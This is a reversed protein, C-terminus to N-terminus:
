PVQFRDSNRLRDSSRSPTHQDHMDNPLEYGGDSTEFVDNSLERFPLCFATGRYAYDCQIANEACSRSRASDPQRRVLGDVPDFDYPNGVGSGWAIRYRRPHQTIDASRVDNMDM